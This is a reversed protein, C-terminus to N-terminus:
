RRSSSWRPARSRSCGRAQGRVGRAHGRRAAHGRAARAHRHAPRARRGRPLGVDRPLGGAGGDDPDDRAGAAPGRPVRRAGEVAVVARAAAADARAEPAGAPVGHVPRLARRAQAAARAGGSRPDRVEQAIEGRPIIGLREVLRFAFGRALGTLGEDRQLAVLPEMLTQIRRDMFHGLRREVKARVDPGAEDDVFGQIRPKLPEDGPVLKGVANTGWMLGGQETFDIESDPANYFRDARLNFEPM